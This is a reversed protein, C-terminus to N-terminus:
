RKDDLRFYEIFSIANENIETVLEDNLWLQYWTIHAMEGNREIVYITDFSFRPYIPNDLSSHVFFVGGKIQIRRIRSIDFPNKMM